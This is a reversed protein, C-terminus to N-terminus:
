SFLNSVYGIEEEIEKLMKDRDGLFFASGPSPQVYVTKDRTNGSTLEARIVQLHNLVTTAQNAKNWPSSCGIHNGNEKEKSTSEVSARIASAASIESM